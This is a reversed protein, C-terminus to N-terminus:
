LNGLEPKLWMPGTIRVRNNWITNDRQRLAIDRVGEEVDTTIPTNGVFNGDIYLDLGQLDQGNSTPRIIIQHRTLAASPKASSLDLRVLSKKMEQACSDLARSSSTLRKNFQRQVVVEGTAVSLGKVLIEASSYPTVKNETFGYASITERHAGANNETISVVMLVDAGALQGLRARDNVINEYALGQEALIKELHRRSILKVGRAEMLAAEASSEVMQLSGPDVNGNPSEAIVAVATARAANGVGALAMLLSAGLLCHWGRGLLPHDAFRHM